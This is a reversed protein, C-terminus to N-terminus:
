ELKDKNADIKDQIQKSLDLKAMKATTLIGNKTSINNSKGHGVIACGNIGLLPAGGYTSPDFREKVRRLANRSLLAGLRNKFNKIMEDKIMRLVVSGLGELVKLCINGIFGDCVIVDVTGETVDHGEINGKFSIDISKLLEFTKQSIENGKKDEEGINLLGVVPERVNLINRVFVEGMIAFQALHQPTCDVNAGADILLSYRSATPLIVAIAPRMVGPVRKINMLSATLTAGTNGPSFFGDAKKQAVLNSAVMVSANKKKRCATAPSEDMNIIEPSHIISVQPNHSRIHRKIIKEDGVLIVQIDAHEVAELSGQILLEPDSEGSMVDVAIIM